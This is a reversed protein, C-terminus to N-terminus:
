RLVIKKEGMGKGVIRRKKAGVMQEGKGEM